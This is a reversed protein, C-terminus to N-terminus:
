NVSIRKNFEIKINPTDGVIVVNRNILKKIEEVNECYGFKIPKSDVLNGEIIARVFESNKIFEFFNYVIDFMNDDDMHDNLKESSKLAEYGDNGDFLFQRTCLVYTKSYDLKENGM